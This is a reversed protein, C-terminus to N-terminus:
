KTSDNIGGGSSKNAKGRAGKAPGSLKRHTDKNKGDRFSDKESYKVKDM